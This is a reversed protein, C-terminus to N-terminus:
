ADEEELADIVGSAVDGAIKLVSIVVALGGVYVYWPESTASDITLAKGIRGAYVYAFTGPAFGLLTGFFYPLFQISSAGYLYNSLAFPFLPSLRLLLMLKFGEKSIAKDMSQFKPNDVLVGEVYGRLLTRGIVFSISAAVAASFLCTLTGPLTGFLYGSSATLIPVAPIALIEALIYFSSFYLMGKQADMTELSKLIIDFSNSPDKILQGLGLDIGLDNGMNMALVGAAALVTITGGILIWKTTDSSDDDLTIQNEKKQMSKADNDNSTSSSQNHDAWFDDIVNNNNTETNKKKKKSQVSLSSTKVIGNYQCYPRRALSSKPALFSHVPDVHFSASGILLCCSAITFNSTPM